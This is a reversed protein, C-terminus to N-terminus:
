RTSSRPLLGLRPPQPLSTKLALWSLLPLTTQLPTAPTRHLLLQQPTPLDKRRLRKAHAKCFRSCYACTLLHAAHMGKYAHMSESTHVQTCMWRTHVDCVCMMKMMMMIVMMMTTMMRLCALPTRRVASAPGQGTKAWRM